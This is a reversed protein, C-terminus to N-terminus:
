FHTYIFPVKETGALIFLVALILVVLLLPVVSPRKSRGVLRDVVKDRENPNQLVKMCARVFGGITQPM